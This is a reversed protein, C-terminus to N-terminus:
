GRRKYKIRKLYLSYATQARQCLTLTLLTTTKFTLAKLDLETNNLQSRYYDLLKRVDWTFTYKLLNPRLHFIGRIYKQVTLQKGFEVNNGTNIFLSLASRTCSITSYNKKHEFLNKLFDLGDQIAANQFDRNSKECFEIWQKIYTNYKKSTNSRWSPMIIDISEKSLGDNILNQRICHMGNFGDKSSNSMKITSRGSEVAKKCESPNDNTGTKANAVAPLLITPYALPTSDPSRRERREKNNPSM